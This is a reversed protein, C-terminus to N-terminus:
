SEAMLLRVLQIMTRVGYGTAGGKKESWCTGAIDWHAWPTEKVFEKLFLAATISGGARPGTHKLDAIESKLADRYSAVLPMRWINEGALEAAKAIQTALPESPTWFPAYDNGLSIIAAGTLTAIDVITDVGLSEAYILADALTMRGEADTNVVEITTGNSATVVDGPRYASGSCMNECAAAIFHVEVGSIGIQAMAKATGLVVASGGMDFKMLEIMSAPGTKLNVGGSDFTIAKGVFAIRRKIEGDGKYTLHIFKPPQISGQAVALYSGMGLKRCTEEELISLHLRDPYAKSLIDAVQALEAPNMVNPPANVLQRTLMVGSVVHAIESLSSSTMDGVPTSDTFVLKVETLIRSETDLEPGPVEASGNRMDLPMPTTTGNRGSGSEDGTKFRTDKYAGLMAGEVM